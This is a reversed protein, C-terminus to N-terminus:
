RSQTKHLAVSGAVSRSLPAIDNATQWQGLLLARHKTLAILYLNLWYVDAACLMPVSLRVGSLAVGAGILGAAVNLLFVGGIFRQGSVTLIYGLLASSVLMSLALADTSPEFPWNQAQGSAAMILIVDLLAVTAIASVLASLRGLRV